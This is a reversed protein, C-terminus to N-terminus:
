DKGCFTLVATAAAEAQESLPLHGAEDIITLQAGPLLGAWQRACAAPLLRDQAGWLILVPATIRHLRRPLKPDHLYPNWGLHATAARNRLYREFWAPQDALQRAWQRAAAAAESTHFTLGAMEEASLRFIDPVPESIRLGAASILVLKRVRAPEITALDAALWGGLSSGALIVRDLGLEDLLDLYFFALDHVSDLDGADGSASFGPHDPRCVGYRGALLSLAPTWAGLDGGGHLYVLPEGSGAELLHIRTGRVTVDRETCPAAAGGTEANAM